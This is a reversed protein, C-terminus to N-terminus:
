RKLKNLLALLYPRVPRLSMWLAVSLRLCRNECPIVRGERKIHSVVGLVQERAIPELGTQADGCMVLRNGEARHVRHLIPANPARLYFLIDGRRIEGSVPALIVGDRQHRLFPRMSDGTVTLHCPIGEELLARMRPIAQEPSIPSSIQRKM